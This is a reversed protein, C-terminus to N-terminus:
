QFCQPVGAEIGNVEREGGGPYVPLSVAQKQVELHTQLGECAPRVKFLVHDQVALVPWEFAGETVLVELGPEGSQLVLFLKM